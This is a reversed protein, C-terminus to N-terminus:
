ENRRPKNLVVATLIIEARTKDSRTAEAEQAEPIDSGGDM